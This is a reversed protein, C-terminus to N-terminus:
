SIVSRRIGWIDHSEKSKGGFSRINDQIWELAFRQDFFGLNQGALPLEPSNPFGFVIRLNTLDLETDVHICVM